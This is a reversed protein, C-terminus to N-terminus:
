RIDTFIDANVLDLDHQISGRNERTMRQWCPSDLRVAKMRGISLHHGDGSGEFTLLDGAERQRSSTVERKVKTIMISSQQTILIDVNDDNQGGRFNTKESLPAERWTWGPERGQTGPSLRNVM